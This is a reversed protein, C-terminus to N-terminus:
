CRTGDLCLVQTLATASLAVVATVITWGVFALFRKWLPPREVGITAMEAEKEWHRDSAM